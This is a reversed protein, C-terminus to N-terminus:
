VCEQYQGAGAHVDSVEYANKINVPEQTLAVMGAIGKGVPVRIQNEDTRLSQDLSSDARVDFLKSVLYRKNRSGRLLFLSGRDCHTLHSVNVLIKHCLIDVDLENAIDRILEMFMEMQNLEVLENRTRLSYQQKHSGSVFRHFMNKTISLRADDGRQETSSTVDLLSGYRRLQSSKLWGQLMPPTVNHLFWTKTFHPHKHLYESVAEPDM